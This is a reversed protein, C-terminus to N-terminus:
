NYKTYEVKKAVKKALKRSTTWKGGFVSIVNGNKQIVGERTTLSIEKSNKVLPRIGSFSYVIDHEIIKNIFYYNYANTLYAKEFKSPNIEGLGSQKVETTRILIQGQYPLVFFVRRENPV